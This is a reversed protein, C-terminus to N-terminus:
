RLTITIRTNLTAAAVQHGLAEPLAVVVFSGQTATGDTAVVSVVTVDTALVHGAGGAESSVLDVRAGPHVLEVVAPDHPRVPVAVHGPTETAAFRAETLVEGAQVPILPVRGAAQEPATMAASPVADAPLRARRVAA